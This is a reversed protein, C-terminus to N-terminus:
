LKLNSAASAIVLSKRKKGVQFSCFYCNIASCNAKHIEQQGFYYKGTHEKLTNSLDLQYGSKINAPMEKKVSNGLMDYVEITANSLFTTPRLLSCELLQTPFYNLFKKEVELKNNNQKRARQQSQQRNNIKQARRNNNSNNM